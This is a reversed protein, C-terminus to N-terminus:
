SAKTSLTPRSATPLRVLFAVRPKLVRFDATLFYRFSISKASGTPSGEGFPPYKTGRVFSGSLYADDAEANSSYGAHHRSSLLRTIRRRTTNPLVYRSGYESLLRLPRALALQNNPAEHKDQLKKQTTEEPM